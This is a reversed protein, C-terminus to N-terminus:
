YAASYCGFGVNADESPTDVNNELHSATYIENKLGTLM